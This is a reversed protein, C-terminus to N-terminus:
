ISVLLGDEVLLSVGSADKVHIRKDLVEVVVWEHNEPIIIGTSTRLEVLSKVKSGPSFRAHTEGAHASPTKTWEHPSGGATGAGAGVRTASRSRADGGENSVIFIWYALDGLIPFLFIGAAWGGDGRDVASAVMAVHLGLVVVGLIYALDVGGPGSPVGDTFFVFAHIVVGAGVGWAWGTSTFPSWAPQENTM